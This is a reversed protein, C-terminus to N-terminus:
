LVSYLRFFTILVLVSVPVQSSMTNIVGLINCLPWYSLVMLRGSAGPFTTAVVAVCSLYIGVLFDATALNMVMMHHIKQVESILNYKNRLINLSFAIVALNGIVAVFAMLWIIPLLSVPSVLGDSVSRKWTSGSIYNCRRNKKLYDEQWLADCDSVQVKAYGSLRDKSKSMKFNSVDRYWEETVQGSALERLHQSTNNNACV